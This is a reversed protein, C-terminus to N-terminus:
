PRGADWAGRDKIEVRFLGQARSSRLAPRAEKRARRFGGIVGGCERGEWEGSQQRTVGM